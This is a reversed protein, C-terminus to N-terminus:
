TLRIYNHERIPYQDSVHGRQNINDQHLDNVGDQLIPEDLGAACPALVDQDVHSNQVWSIMACEDCM